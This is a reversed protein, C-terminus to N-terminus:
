GGEEPQALLRDREAPPVDALTAHRSLQLARIYAIIAWRDDPGVRNAYDYMVGYGNTIVDFFHGDPADRLRPEHYSPPAPFGRRVIIGRGDGDPGHCPACFIEFAERGRRLLALTRPPPVAAVAERPVAAPPPPRPAEFTRPARQHEMNDCGAALMLALALVVRCPATM